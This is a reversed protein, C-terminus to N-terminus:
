FIGWDMFKHFNKPHLRNAILEEKYIDCRETISKYDYKFISPNKSLYGYHIKDLNKELLHLANPNSSLCVWDINDVDIWDRLKLHYKM